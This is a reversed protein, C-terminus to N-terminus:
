FIFLRLLKQQLSCNERALLHSIVRQRNKQPLYSRVIFMLLNLIYQCHIHVLHKM